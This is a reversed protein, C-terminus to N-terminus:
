SVPQPVLKEARANLTEGADGIAAVYAVLADVAEFGADRTEVRGADGMKDLVPKVTGNWTLAAMVVSYTQDEELSHSVLREGQPKEYDMEAEFGAWEPCAAPSEATALCAALQAGTLTAVVVPQGQRRGAMFLANGDVPGELPTYYVSGPQCLAADAGSQELLAAAQLRAMQNRDLGPECQALITGAEPCVEREWQRVRELLAEDCPTEGHRMPTIIRKQAVIEETDLDITLELQGVQRAYDGAQVILAGSQESVMPEELLEHSHGGVFVDVSPALAAVEKCVSSSLHGVVVILGAEEDLREAERQAIAASEEVGVAGAYGPLGLGIVGVKVGDVDCLMSPTFVPKGQEDLLNAYLLPFGCLQEHKALEYLGGSVDHNGPAGADYGAEALAMYVIDSNTRAAVMDGKHMIDGGDLMLIDPRQERMQKVWGAVYVLGGRSDYGPRLHDHIDNTHLLLVTDTEAHASCVAALGCLVILFLRSFRKM